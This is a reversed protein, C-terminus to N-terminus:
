EQNRRIPASMKNAILSLVLKFSRLSMILKLTVEPYSKFDLVETPNTFSRDLYKSNLDVSKLVLAKISKPISM